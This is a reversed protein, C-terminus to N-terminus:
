KQSRYNRKFLIMNKTTNDEAKRKKMLLETLVVNKLVSSDYKYTLGYKENIYQYGKGDLSDNMVASKRFDSLTLDYGCNLLDKKIRVLLASQAMKGEASGEGKTLSRILYGTDSLKWMEISGGRLLRPMEEISSYESMLEYLEESVKIINHNDLEILGDKYPHNFRDISISLLDPTKLGELTGLLCIKSDYNEVEEIIKNMEKWTMIKSELLQTKVLTQPNLKESLDQATYYNSRMHNKYAWELYSTIIYTYLYYKSLSTIINNDSMSIFTYIVDEYEFQSLDKGLELEVNLMNYLFTYLSTVKKIETVEDLFIKKNESTDLIFDIIEKSQLSELEEKPIRYIGEVICTTSNISEINLINNEM